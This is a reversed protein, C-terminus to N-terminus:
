TVSDAVIGSLLIGQRADAYGALSSALNGDWAGCAVATSCYLPWYPLATWICAVCLRRLRSRARDLTLALVQRGLAGGSIAPRKGGFMGALWRILGIGVILVCECCEDCLELHHPLIM